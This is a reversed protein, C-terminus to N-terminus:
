TNRADAKRQQPSWPVQRTDVLQSYGFWGQLHHFSLSSVSGRLMKLMKLVQADTFRLGNGARIHVRRVTAGRAWIEYQFNITPYKTEIHQQLEPLLLIIASAADWVTSSTSPLPVIHDASLVVGVRPMVLRRKYAAIRGFWGLAFRVLQVTLGIPKMLAFVTEMIESGVTAGAGIPLPKSRECPLGATSLFEEVCQAIADDDPHTLQSHTLDRAHVGIVGSPLPEFIAFVNSYDDLVRFSPM